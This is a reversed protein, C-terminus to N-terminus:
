LHNASTQLVGLVGLLGLLRLLMIGRISRIVRIGRISRIVRVSWNSRTLKIVRFVWIDEIGRSNEMFRRVRM